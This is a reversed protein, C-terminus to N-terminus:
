RNVHVWGSASNSGQRVEVPYVGPGVGAGQGGARQGQQAGGSAPARRLDWTVRNLGAAASGTMQRVVQGAGDRITITSPGASKLWYYIDAPIRAGGGFGGGGRRGGGAAALAPESQKLVSVNSAIIQANLQQIPRVDLAFMGRGHTAAVMIDERPHIVIDHVYTSPLDQALAHYSQGGDVSVYVGVDTGVYLVNANKPDEKIVNIPGLPINGAISTWTRGYDTSKWLYPAFDDDRKGNQAMYVTGESYMSAALEAIFKGRPLDTAIENWTKGGDQTVHTRGDDTGAYLLGFKLPSESLSFVTQYPIDGYKTSDNYTLDGSIREWTAGADTTRHVMQFGHYMVNSNHPSLIFPAM